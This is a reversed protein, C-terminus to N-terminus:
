GAVLCGGNPQIVRAGVFCDFVISDSLTTISSDQSVRMGIGNWSQMTSNGGWLPEPAVIAAATANPHFAINQFGAAEVTIEANDAAEAQLAPYITVTTANSAIAADKRVVYRTTDGAITFVTGAKVVGTAATFTDLGITTAGVAGTGNVLVTGAIDGRAHAGLLADEIYTFGYRRGLTADRLGTPGDQGFDQSTFQALQILSQSVTTDVWMIRGNKDIFADNLAKTGAALHAITSPRNAVNGALNARFVQGTQLIYKDISQAFSRMVPLTVLRTFDSLELTKQKSTLDVRKYFHHELTLDTESEVINTASTTGGFEDADGLVPPITVKISDGVKSGTFRAEKDRAFTNGAVLLNSLVISADRAVDVPTVFKNM